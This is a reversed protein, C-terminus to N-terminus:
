DTQHIREHNFESSIYFFVCLVCCRLVTLFSILSEFGHCKESKDQQCQGRVSAEKGRRDVVQNDKVNRVPTKEKQGQLNTLGNKSRWGTSWVGHLVPVCFMLLQHATQFIAMPIDQLQNIAPRYMQEVYRHIAIHAVQQDQFSGLREQAFVPHFHHLNRGNVIEIFVDLRALDNKKLATAIKAIQIRHVLQM